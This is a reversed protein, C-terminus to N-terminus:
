RSGRRSEAFERTTFLGVGLPARSISWVLQWPRASGRPMAKEYASYKGLKITEDLQVAEPKGEGSSATARRGGRSATPRVTEIWHSPGNRLPGIGTIVGDFRDVLDLLSEDDEPGSNFLDEQGVM